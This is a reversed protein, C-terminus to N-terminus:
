RHERAARAENRLRRMRQRYEEQSEYYVHLHRPPSESGDFVSLETVPTNQLRRDVDLLDRLIECVDFVVRNRATATAQHDAKLAASSAREDQHVLPVCLWTAAEGQSVLEPM